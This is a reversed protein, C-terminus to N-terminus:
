GELDAPRDVDRLEAARAFVLEATALLDRAGRDGSCALLAPFHARGFLAPPSPAGGSSSAVLAAGGEFRALLAAIHERGVFPMDALAILVASTERTIAAAAGLAVSGGMGQEADSNVVVSLGLARLGEPVPGEGSRCVAIRRAFMFGGFADAACLALPVGNLPHALKDAGFRRGSGAALLVLARTL